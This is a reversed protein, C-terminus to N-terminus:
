RGLVLLKNSVLPCHADLWAGYTVFAASGGTLSCSDHSVLQFLFSFVHVYFALVYVTGICFVNATGM